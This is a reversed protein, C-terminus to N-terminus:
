PSEETFTFYIQSLILKISVNGFSKELYTNLAISLQRSRDADTTYISMFREILDTHNAFVVESPTIPYIVVDTLWLSLYKIFDAFIDTNKVTKSFYTDVWNMFAMDDKETVVKLFDVTMDMVALNDEYYLCLARALSGNALRSYLRAKSGECILNERLYTEIVDPPIENFVITNCRSRITPLLKQANECTLIFLTDPPPEELTKLFANSAQTTMKDYDEIIIVKTRAEHCGMIITNLLGRIQEIRIATVTDFRYDNYPTKRKTEIYANYQEIEREKKLEGTDTFDFNPIPFLYKIDPHLFLDIKKCSPCSNCPRADIEPHHCNIAKAFTLASLMKGTGDPGAFIYAQAYKQSHLVNSLIKVAHPQALINNLPM